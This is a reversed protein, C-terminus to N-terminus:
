LHPWDQLLGRPIQRANFQDLLGKGYYAVAEPRIVYEGSKVTIHQDDPGPVTDRKVTPVPGGKSWGADGPDGGLGSSGFSGDSNQSPGAGFGGGDGGGVSGGTENGTFNGVLNGDVFGYSHETGLNGYGGLGPSGLSTIDPSFGLLGAPSMVASLPSMQQEYGALTMDGRSLLGSLDLSAANRGIAETRQQDPNQGALGFSLSNALAPGFSVDRNLGVSSLMDNQRSVDVATGIAAGALGLGPVGAALSAVTGGVGGVTAYSPSNASPSTARNAQGSTTSFGGPAAATSTPAGGVTNSGSGGNDNAEGIQQELV